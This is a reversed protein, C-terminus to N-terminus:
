NGAAEGLKPKDWVKAVAFTEEIAIRIREHDFGDGTQQAVKVAAVCRRFNAPVIGAEERREADRLM